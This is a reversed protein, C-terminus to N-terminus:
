IALTEMLELKFTGTIDYFYVGANISCTLLNCNFIFIVSLYHLEALYKGAFDCIINRKKEMRKNGPKDPIV